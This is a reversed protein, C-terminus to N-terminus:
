RSGQKHQWRNMLLQQDLLRDVLDVTTATFHHTVFSLVLYRWGELHLLVVYM